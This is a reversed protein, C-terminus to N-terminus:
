KFFQRKFVNWIIITFNGDYAWGTTLLSTERLDSNEWG